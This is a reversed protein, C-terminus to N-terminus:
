TGMLLTRKSQSSPSIGMSAEFLYRRLARLGIGSLLFVGYDLVIVTFPLIAKPHSHIWGIRLLFMLLTPPIAALSFTIADGLNFYRWITRYAGMAWLCAPRFVMLAVASIRMSALYNRPVDFDFRLQWALWTAIVSVSADVVILGWRNFIWRPLRDVACGVRASLERLGSKSRRSSM